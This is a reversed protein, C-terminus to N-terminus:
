RNSLLTNNSIIYLQKQYHLLTGWLLGQSLLYTTAFQPSELGPNICIILLNNIWNILAWYLYRRSTKIKISRYIKSYWKLTILIISIYLIGGILGMRYFMNLISSHNAVVFLGENNTFDNTYMNSNSVENYITETVYASGYGVGTFYTEKLSLVENTWVMLRWLANADDSIYQM